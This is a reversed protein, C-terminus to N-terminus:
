RHTIGVRDVVKVTQGMKLAIFMIRNLCLPPMVIQIEDM